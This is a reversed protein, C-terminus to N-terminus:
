LPLVSKGSKIHKALEELSTSGLREIILQKEKYVLHHLSCPNGSDCEKLSLLCSNIRTEGDIANVIEAIKVQKNEESIYFGGKPGKTSSILNKKSLAQLIKAIYAKPVNIPKAIDSIVVKENESSNVALYLTAKIAYKTSNSFM